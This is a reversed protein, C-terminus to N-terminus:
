KNHVNEVILLYTKTITKKVQSIYEERTLNLLSCFYKEEGIFQLNSYMGVFIDMLVENSIEMKENLQGLSVAVNYLIRMTDQKIEDFGEDHDDRIKSYTNMLLKAYHPSEFLYDTMIDTAILVRDRLDKGTAKEEIRKHVEHIKMNMFIIVAQYLESKDGWHYHVTAIDVGAEEAIMRTTSGHYGYTGFVISSANLIKTKTSKPDKLSKKIGKLM